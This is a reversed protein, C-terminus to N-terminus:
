LLHFLKDAQTTELQNIVGGIALFVYVTSVPIYFFTYFNCTSIVTFQQKCKEVTKQATIFYLYYLPIVTFLPVGMFNYFIVNFINATAGLKKRQPTDALRKIFSHGFQHCYMAIIPKKFAM